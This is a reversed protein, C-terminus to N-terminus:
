NSSPIVSFSFIFFHHCKISEMFAEEYAKDFFLIYVKKFTIEFFISHIVYQLISSELEVKNLFLFQFFQISGFFAAYENLTPENENLYTHKKLFQNNKRNVDSVFGEILDERILSCIYSENEKNQRASEYEEM